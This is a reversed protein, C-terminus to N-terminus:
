ARRFSPGRRAGRRATAPRIFWPVIMDAARPDTAAGCRAYATGTEEMELLPSSGHVGFNDIIGFLTTELEVQGVSRGRRGEVADVLFAPQHHDVGLHRGFEPAHADGRLKGVAGDVQHPLRTAPRHQATLEHDIEEAAVGFIGVDDGTSRPVTM